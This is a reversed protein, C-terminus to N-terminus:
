SSPEWPEPTNGAEVWALFAVYDTNAPDAPFCRILGAESINRVVTEGDESTHVHYTSM